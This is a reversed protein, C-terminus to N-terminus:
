ALDSLLSAFALIRYGHIKPPQQPALGLRLPRWDECVWPADPKAEQRHRWLLWDDVDCWEPLEGAGLSRARRLHTKVDALLPVGDDHVRYPKFEANPIRRTMKGENRYLYLFLRTLPMAQLELRAGDQLLRITQNNSPSGQSILYKSLLGGVGNRHIDRLQRVGIEKLTRARRQADESEKLLGARLFEIEKAGMKSLCPMAKCRGIQAPLSGPLKRGFERAVKKGLATLEKKNEDLLGCSVLLGAYILRATQVHLSRPLPDGRRIQGNANQCLKRDLLRQGLYRCAGAGNVGNEATHRLREGVSLAVEWCDIFKNNDPFKGIGWCLFSLYRARVTAVTIGPLLKEAIQERAAIYGLPDISGPESNGPEVWQPLLHIPM